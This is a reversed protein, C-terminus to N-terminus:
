KHGAAFDLGLKILMWISACGGLVFSGKIVCKAIFKKMEGVDKVLGPHEIEKDGFLARDFKELQRSQRDAIETQQKLIQTHSDLTMFLRNKEDTNLHESESM